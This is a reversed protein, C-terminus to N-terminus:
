HHSVLMANTLALLDVCGNLRRQCITTAPISPPTSRVGTGRTIQHALDPREWATAVTGNAHQAPPPPASFKWDFRRSEDRTVELMRIPLGVYRGRLVLRTRL